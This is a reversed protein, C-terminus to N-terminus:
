ALKLATGNLCHLQMGEVPIHHGIHSGCQRCHIEAMANTQSLMGAQGYEPVPGDLGFMVANPIAHHFFVWGKDLPQFWQGEYIPLDCGRCLYQGDHAERWLDTTKPVETKGGRLIRYAEEDGDLHDRWEAETRQIEYPFTSTEPVYVAITQNGIQVTEQAKLAAGAAMTAASALLARRTLKTGTM